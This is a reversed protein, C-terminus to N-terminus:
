YWDPTLAKRQGPVNQQPKSDNTLAMTWLALDLSIDTRLPYSKHTGGKPDTVITEGHKVNINLIRGSMVDTTGADGSVADSNGGVSWIKLLIVLPNLNENALKNGVRDQDRVRAFYGRLLRVQTDVEDITWKNGDVIYVISMTIERAGSTAFVAVPEIGRLDGTSWNGRRSDNIIKPPFQFSLYNGDAFQFVVNDNLATDHTTYVIM